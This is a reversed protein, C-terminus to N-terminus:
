FLNVLPDTEHGFLYLHRLSLLLHHHFFNPPLPPILQYAFLLKGEIRWVDDREYEWVVRCYPYFFFLFFLSTVHLHSYHSTPVIGEVLSSLLTINAAKRRGAPLSLGIRELSERLERGGNKSKARIPLSFFIYLYKIRIFTIFVNRVIWLFFSLSYFDSSRFIASLLLSYVILM